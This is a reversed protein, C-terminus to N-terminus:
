ASKRLSKAADITAREALLDLVQGWVYRPKRGVYFCPLDMQGVKEVSTGLAAAVHASEVIADRPFTIVPRLEDVRETM